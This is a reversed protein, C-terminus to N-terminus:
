PMAEAIGFDEFDISGKLPNTMVRALAGAGCM